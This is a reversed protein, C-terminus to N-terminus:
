IKIVCLAFTVVIQAIHILQDVWLNITQKNAKQDDVVGHIFVNFIFTIVFLQDVDFKMFLAVPLMIMFSWSFAHMILAWIYDHKYKESPANDKWFQKQKLNCLVPAQLGYDDVIHLFIMLLFLFILNM